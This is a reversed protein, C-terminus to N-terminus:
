EDIMNIDLIHHIHIIEKSSCYKSSSDIVISDDQIDAIRGRITEKAFYVVAAGDSYEVDVLDDLKFIKDNIKIVKDISIYAM